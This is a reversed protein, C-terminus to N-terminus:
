RLKIGQETLVGNASLDSLYYAGQSFIVKAHQSSVVRSPDYLAWDVKVDRGIVGGRDTFRKKKETPNDPSLGEIITLELM